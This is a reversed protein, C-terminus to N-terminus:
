GSASDECANCGKEAPHDDEALQRVHTAANQAAVCAGVLSGAVAASRSRLGRNYQRLSASTQRLLRAPSGENTVCPMSPNPLPSVPDM